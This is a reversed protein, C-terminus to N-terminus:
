NSQTLENVLAGIQRLYFYESTQTKLGCHKYKSQHLGLKCALSLSNLISSLSLYFILYLNLTFSSLSLFYLHHYHM